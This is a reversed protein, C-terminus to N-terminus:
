SGNTRLLCVRPEFLDLLAGMHTAIRYGWLRPIFPQNIAVLGFSAQGVQPEGKSVKRHTSIPTHNEEDISCTIRLLVFKYVFGEFGAGWIVVLASLGLTAPKADRTM